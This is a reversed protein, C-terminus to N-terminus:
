FTSQLFLDLEIERITPKDAQLEIIRNRIVGRKRLVATAAETVGAHKLVDEVVDNSKADLLAEHRTFKHDGVGGVDFGINDGPLVFRRDDLRRLCRAFIELSEILLRVSELGHQASAPSGVIVVPVLATT